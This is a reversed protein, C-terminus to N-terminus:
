RFSHFLSRTSFSVTTGSNLTDEFEISGLHENARGCSGAALVLRDSCEYLWNIGKCATETVDIKM